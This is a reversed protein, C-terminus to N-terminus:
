GQEPPPTHIDFCPSHWAGNTAFLHLGIATMSWNAGSMTHLYDDTEAEKKNEKQDTESETEGSESLEIAEAVFHLQPSIANAIFLVTLGTFLLRLVVGRTGSILLRYPTRIEM